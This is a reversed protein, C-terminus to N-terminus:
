AFFRVGSFDAKRFAVKQEASGEPWMGIIGALEVPRHPPSSGSERYGLMKSDSFRLSLPTDVQAAESRSQHHGVITSLSDRGGSMQM